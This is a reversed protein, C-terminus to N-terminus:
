ICFIYVQQGAVQLLQQQTLGELPQMAVPPVPPPKPLMDVDDDDSDHPLGYKSFHKV